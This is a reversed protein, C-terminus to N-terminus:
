KAAANAVGKQPESVPALVNEMRVELDPVKLAGEHLAGWFKTWIQKSPFKLVGIDYRKGDLHGFVTCEVTAKIPDKADPIVKRNFILLM